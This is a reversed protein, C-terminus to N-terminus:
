KIRPIFLGFYKKTAEGIKIYRGKGIEDAAASMDTEDIRINGGLRNVLVWSLTTLWEVHDALKQVDERTNKNIRGLVDEVEKNVDEDPKIDRIM